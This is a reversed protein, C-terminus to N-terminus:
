AKLETSETPASGEAPRVVARKVACGAVCFKGYDIPSVNSYRVGAHRSVAEGCREVVRGEIIGMEGFRREGSAIRM